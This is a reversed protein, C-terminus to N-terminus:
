EYSEEEIDGILKRDTDFVNFECAAILKDIMCVQIDCVGGAIKEYMEKQFEFCILIYRDDKGMDKSTKATWIFNQLSSIDVIGGFLVCEHNEIDYGDYKMDPTQIDPSVLEDLIRMRWAPEGMLQLLKRGNDTIEVLYLNPYVTMLSNLSWANSEDTETFLMEYIKDGHHLIIGSDNKMQSKISLNMAYNVAMKMKIEGTKEYKTKGKGSDFVSYIGGPSVYLGTMRSGIIKKLGDEQYTDDQYMAAVKIERSPYFALGEMDQMSDLERRENSYTPINSYHFFMNSEINRYLRLQKSNEGYRIDKSVSQNDQCKKIQAPTLGDKIVPLIKSFNNFTIIKKRKSPDTSNYAINVIGENNMRHALKEMYDLRYPFMTLFDYPIAGNECLATILHNRGSGQRKYQPKTNSM